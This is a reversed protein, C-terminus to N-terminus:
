SFFRIYILFGMVIWMLFVVGNLIIKRLKENKRFSDSDRTIKKRSLTFYRILYVLSAGGIIINLLFLPFPLTDTIHVVSGQITQYFIYNIIGVIWQLLPFAVFSISFILLPKMLEERSLKNNLIKCFISPKITLLLVILLNVTAIWFFIQASQDIIWLGAYLTWSIIFLSIVTISFVFYTNIINKM